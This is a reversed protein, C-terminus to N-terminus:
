QFGVTSYLSKSNVATLERPGNKPWRTNITYCLMDKNQCLIACHMSIALLIIIAHVTFPVHFIVFMLRFLILMSTPATCAFNAYNMNYKNVVIVVFM